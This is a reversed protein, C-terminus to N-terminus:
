LDLAHVWVGVDLLVKQLDCNTTELDADHQCRKVVGRLFAM